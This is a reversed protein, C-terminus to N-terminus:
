EPWPLSHDSSLARKPSESIIMLRRAGYSDAPIRYDIERRTIQIGNAYPEAIRQEGRLRNRVPGFRPVSLSTGELGQKVKRV